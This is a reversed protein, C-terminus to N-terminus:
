KDGKKLMASVNMWITRHLRECTSFDIKECDDADNGSYFYFMIKSISGPELDNDNITQALYGLEDIKKFIMMYSTTIIEILMDLNKINEGLRPCLDYATNLYVCLNDENFLEVTPDDWDGIEIWWLPQNKDYVEQIPFDMHLRGFDLHTEDLIGVTVGEDNILHREDESVVDVSKKIYAIMELELDGQIEGPQFEYDFVVERKNDLVYDKIPLITGMLTLTRNIWTIGIGVEAGTCAIGNKGILMEPYEFNVTRRLRLGDQEIKWNEDEIKITGKGKAMLSYEYEGIHYSYSYPTASYGSVEKLEDTLTPYFFM